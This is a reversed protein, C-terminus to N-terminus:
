DQLCEFMERLWRPLTEKGRVGDLQHELTARCWRELRRKAARNGGDVM